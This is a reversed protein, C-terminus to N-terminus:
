TQQKGKKPIYHNQQEESFVLMALKYGSLKILTFLQTRALALFDFYPGGLDCSCFILTM